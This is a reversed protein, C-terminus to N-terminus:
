ITIIFSLGYLILLHLPYFIYLFYKINPGKKKNYLLIIIISLSTSIALPLYFLLVQM